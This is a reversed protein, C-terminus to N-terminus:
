ALKTNRSEPLEACSAIEFCFAALDAIGLIGRFLSAAVCTKQIAPRSEAAAM